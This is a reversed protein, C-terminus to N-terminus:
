STFINDIVSFIQPLNQENLETIQFADIVKTLAQLDCTLRLNMTLNGTGQDGICKLIASSRELIKDDIGAKRAVSNAESHAVTGPVAKYLYIMEDGQKEYMFTQYNIRNELEAM